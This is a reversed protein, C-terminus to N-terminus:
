ARDVEAEHHKRRQDPHSPAAAGRWSLYLIWGGLVVDFGLCIPPWWAPVGANVVMHPHVADFVGHLLVGVGVIAASRWYGAIAIACFVAAALLEFAIAQGAMFAFLVYYGAIVMLVTPFFSRDRHFGLWHVLALLAAALAAGLAVIM